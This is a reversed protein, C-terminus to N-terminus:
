RAEALLKALDRIMPASFVMDLTGTMGFTRNASAILRAAQLSTGGAVFFNTDADLDDVGLIDRAMGLLADIDIGEGTASDQAGISNELQQRLLHLDVKGGSTTPFSEFIKVYNPIMPAPLFRALAIRVDDAPANSAGLLCLGLGEGIQVIRADVANTVQMAAATIEGPEVRLGRVSIQQDLRGDFFLTGEHNIVRDGTRYWREGDEGVYFRSATLQPDGLYGLALGPGSLLLEGGCDAPARSSEVDSLLRIRVGPLPTGIPVMDNESLPLSHRSTALSTVTAESVGYANVLEPRKPLKAWQRVAEVPLADSGTIVLRLKPLDFKYGTRSIYAAWGAFYSAPLNAVTVENVRLFETFQCYDMAGLADTLVVVTAGCSLTPWLEEVAVDFELATAHLVKDSSELGWEAIVCQRHWDVASTPIVVGKPAGTSGSTFVVYAVSEHHSSPHAVGSELVQGTATVLVRAAPAVANVVAARRADPADSPLVTYAAGLKIAALMAVIAPRGRTGQILISQGARVGGDSLQQSAKDIERLLEAYTTAGTNSVIAVSQSNRFEEVDDLLNHM